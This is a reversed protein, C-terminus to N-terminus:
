GHYFTFLPQNCFAEEDQHSGSMFDISSDFFFWKVKEKGKLNTRKMLLIIIYFVM